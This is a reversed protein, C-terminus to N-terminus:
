YGCDRTTNNTITWTLNENNSTQYMFCGDEDEAVLKVTAQQWSINLTRTSGAGISESLQDAGWEDNDAPSLYFHRIERSSQNVITVATSTTGAHSLAIPAFLVVGLITLRSLTRTILSNKM